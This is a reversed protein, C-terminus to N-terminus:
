CKEKLSYSVYVSRKGKKYKEHRGLKKICSVDIRREEAVYQVLTFYDKPNQCDLRRPNCFFEAPIVNRSNGKCIRLYPRKKCLVGAHAQFIIESPLSIVFNEEGM